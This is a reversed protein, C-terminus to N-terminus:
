KKIISEKIKNFRSVGITRKIFRAIKTKVRACKRNPIWSSEYWHIAVTNKTKEMRGTVVDFPCFYDKPVFAVNDIVTLKSKDEIKSLEEDLCKTNRVTCPTLDLNGDVDIFKENEYDDLLKKVLADGAKAGFGLGTAIIDNKEFCFFSNYDLFKDLNDLLEVDTDLYIGGYKYVIWLRAYDAVFAWKKNEYAEKVYSNMNVNFNSENWEKIEYNQCKIHWSEICEKIKKSKDAGGFWCYHIIKPIQKTM